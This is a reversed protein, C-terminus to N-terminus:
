HADFFQIHLVCLFNVALMLDHIPKKLFLEYLLKISVFHKDLFM